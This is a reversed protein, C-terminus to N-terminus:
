EFRTWKDQELDYTHGMVIQWAETYIQLAEDDSAKPLTYVGDSIESPMMVICMDYAAKFFEPFLKRATWMKIRILITKAFRRNM